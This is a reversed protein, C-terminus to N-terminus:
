SVLMEDPIELEGSILRPLLADRLQVLLRSEIRRETAAEQLPGIKANGVAFLDQGPVASKAQDLHSRQIHGMTTAKSQAIARFEPLHHLTAQHAFWSPVSRPIVKFLHQNLAGRGGAWTTVELAGSWSFLIDGDEVVFKVPVETSARGAGDVSGARLQPIKIVPLFDQGSIEPYKQLALGNLYEAFSPLSQAEWGSPIPGLESDEFSDPFLAATEADMGVPQEGRSKAHVPDFDIFWSKFITQAIEELTSAIEQNAEIKRSLSFYTDGIFRQLSRGVVPIQLQHFDGKKLHPITSGVSLNKIRQQVIGSRLAAFFYLPEIKEQDPRLAVMDQAICFDVLEPVLNVRGPTGKNVFIIDGSVPHGKFWTEYTESSVYRVKEKVPYLTDNTICNTAILPIGEDATPCSRGRNDIIEKILETM